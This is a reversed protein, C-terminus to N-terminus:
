KVAMKFNVLPFEEIFYKELEVKEDVDKVTSLVMEYIEHVTMQFSKPKKLHTNILNIGNSVTNEDYLLKMIEDYIKSMINYREASEPENSDFIFCLRKEFSIEFNTFFYTEIGNRNIIKSAHVKFKFIEDGNHIRQIIEPASFLNTGKLIMGKINVAELNTFDLLELDIDLNMDKFVDFLLNMFLLTTPAFESHNSNKITAARKLVYLPSINLSERILFEFIDHHIKRNGAVSSVVKKNLLDFRLKINGISKRTENGTIPNIEMETFDLEVEIVQNIDDCRIDGNQNFITNGYSFGTSFMSNLKECIEVCSSDTEFQMIINPNKNSVSFDLVKMIEKMIEEKQEDNVELYELIYSTCESVEEFEIDARNELERFHQSLRALRTKKHLNLKLKRKLYDIFIDNNM